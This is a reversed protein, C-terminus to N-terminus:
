KKMGAPDCCMKCKKCVGSALMLLAAVGVVIYAVREAMVSSQLLWHVLNFNFAGILGWNLAGLWVLGFLGKHVGCYSRM